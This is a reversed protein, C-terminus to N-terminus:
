RFLRIDDFHDGEDSLEFYEEIDFALFSFIIDDISDRSLAPVLINILVGWAVVIVFSSKTLAARRSTLIVM